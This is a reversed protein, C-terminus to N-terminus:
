ESFWQPNCKDMVMSLSEATEQLHQIMAKEALDPDQKKLAELVKRHARCTKSIPTLEFEISLFRLRDMSGKVTEVIDWAKDYGPASLIIRHFEADLSFHLHVNYDDAVNEQKHVNEELLAIVKDNICEATKRIIKSEIAERIVAGQLVQSRSIRKVRTTKKPEILVFGNESLKILAERVPQRSINFKASVENESLHDGPMLRCEIIARKLFAYIQRSIPDVSNLIFKEDTLFIDNM